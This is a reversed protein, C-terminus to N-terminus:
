CARLCHSHIYGPQVFGADGAAEDSENTICFTEILQCKTVFTVLFIFRGLSPPLATTQPQTSQVFQGTHQSLAMHGTTFTGTGLKHSIDYHAWLGNHPPDSAM